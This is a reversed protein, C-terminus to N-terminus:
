VKLTTTRPEFGLPIVEQSLNSLDLSTGNKKGKLHKHILSILEFVQNVRKTRFGFGDFIVKEPYISGIIKRKCVVDGEQYLKTLKSLVMLRDDLLPRINENKTKHSSIQIELRNIKSELDVKLLRFEGPDLHGDLLLERAKNLRTTTEELKNRYGKIEHQNFATKGRYCELILEKFLILEGTSFDYKAIENVMKEHVVEAKYRAGCESSCHYYHYYQTRGKSGSGTLLRECLPCKLFGRLPLKADIPTKVRQKKKRGNLVDQVNLFLEESILPEHLGDVLEEPEDKYKPVVIKGYYM